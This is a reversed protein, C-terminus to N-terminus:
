LLYFKLSQFDTELNEYKGYKLLIMNICYVIM